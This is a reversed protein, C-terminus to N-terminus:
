EKKPELRIERESVAIQPSPFLCYLVGSLHGADLYIPDHISSSGNPCASGSWAFVSVNPYVYRADPPERAVALAPALAIIAFLVIFRSM